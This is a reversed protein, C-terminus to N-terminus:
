RAPRTRGQAPGVAVLTDREQLILRDNGAALVVSATEARRRVGRRDDWLVVGRGSALLWGGAVPRAWPRAAPAAVGVATASRDPWVRYGTTPSWALTGDVLFEGPRLPMERHTGHYEDLVAVRDRLPVYLDHGAYLRAPDFRCSRALAGADDWAFRHSWVQKGDDVGRITAVCDPATPPTIVTLRYLSPHLVPAPGRTRFTWSTRGTEAVIASVGDPGTAYLCGCGPRGPSLTVRGTTRATWLRDGTDLAIGTLVCRAATCAATVVVPDALVAPGGAPREWRTSGDARSVARLSTAGVLVAFGAGALVDTATRVAYAPPLDVAWRLRGAPFDISALRRGEAVLGDDRDTFAWERRGDTPAPVPAPMRYLEVLPDDAPTLPDPGGICGALALLLVLPLLRRM